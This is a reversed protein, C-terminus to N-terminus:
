AWIALSDEKPLNTHKRYNTNPTLVTMVAAGFSCLNLTNKKLFHM